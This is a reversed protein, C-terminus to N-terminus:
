SRVNSYVDGEHFTIQGNASSTVVYVRDDNEILFTAPLCYVRGNSTDHRQRLKDERVKNLRDGVAREFAVKYTGYAKHLRGERHYLRGLERGGQDYPTLVFQDVKHNYRLLDEILQQKTGVSYGDDTIKLVGDEGSEPDDVVVVSVGGRPRPMSRAAQWFEANASKWAVDLAYMRRELGRWDLMTEPKIGLRNDWRGLHHIHVYATRQLAVNERHSLKKKRGVYRILPERSYGPDYSDIDIHKM